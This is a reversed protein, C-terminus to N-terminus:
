RGFTAPSSHWSVLQTIGGVTRWVSTHAARLENAVGRAIYSISVEGTLISIDGYDRTEQHIADFALYKRSGSALSGVLSDKTDVLGNSHIYQVDDSLLRKLTEVDGQVLADYRMRELKVVDIVTM